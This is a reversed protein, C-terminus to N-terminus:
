LPNMFHRFRNPLSLTTSSGYMIRYCWEIYCTVESWAVLAVIKGIPVRDDFYIRSRDWVVELKDAGVISLYKKICATSRLPTSQGFLMTQLNPM